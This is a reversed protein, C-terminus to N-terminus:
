LLVSVSTSLTQLYKKLLVHFLELNRKTTETPSRHTLQYCVRQPPNEELEIIKLPFEGCLGLATTRPAFMWFDASSAPLFNYLVSISNARVLPLKEGDLFVSRWTNFVAGCGLHKNNPSGIVLEREPDLASPHISTGSFSSDTPLLVVMDDAYVPVTEVDPYNTQYTAFGVDVEKKAVLSYIMDSPHLKVQLHFHDPGFVMQRYLAALNYELFSDATTISLVHQEEENKLHDCENFLALFDHAIKSFAEGKPTLVVSKHGKHREFLQIGLENELVKLQTSVTSPSLYLSEAAKVINKEKTLALFAEINSQNM